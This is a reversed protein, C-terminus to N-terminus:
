VIIEEAEDSASNTRPLIAGESSPRCDISIKGPGYAMIYLLGGVIALNKGFSPDDFSNHVLFVTGITFLSLITANKHTKWGLILLLGAVIEIVIVTYLLIDLYPIGSPQVLSPFVTSFFDRASEISIVKAIGASLFLGGIFLRGFLPLLIRCWACRKKGDRVRTVENKMYYM